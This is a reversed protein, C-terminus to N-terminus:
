AQQVLLLDGADGAAGETRAAFAEETAAEVACSLPRERRRLAESSRRKACALSTTAPPADTVSLTATEEISATGRRKTKM